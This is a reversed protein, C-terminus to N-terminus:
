SNKKFGNWDKDKDMKQTILDHLIQVIPKSYQITAWQLYHSMDPTLNLLYKTNILKKAFPIYEDLLQTITESNYVRSQLKKNSTFSEVVISPEIESDERYLVLAPKKMESAKGIIFGIGSSYQTSEVLIIDSTLLIKNIKNYLETLSQKDEEVTTKFYDENIIIKKKKLHQRIVTRYNDADGAYKAGFLAVKM